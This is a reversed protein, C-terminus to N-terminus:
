APCANRASAMVGCFEGRSVTWVDDVLTMGGELASYATEEGFLVDYTITASEGDISVVTPVLSIGGMASGAAEYADITEHLADADEIHEAKDDYGVTSDFVLAWVDAAEQEESTMEGTAAVQEDLLAMSPVETAPDGDAALALEPVLEDIVYELSLASGHSFAGSLLPDAIIERGEAFATLTPRLAEGAVAEYGAEDSVVWVIVDQDLVALEESSVSFFFEDGALEDFEAPTVFGMETLTQARGDGSAYAGPEEEFTFAVAATQGEFEPHAERVAAFAAENDSIVAAAEESRGLAAGMIELQDRWPTSYDPHDAPRAVTPAIESLTAYDGDSMGSNIGIILDPDLAAIQEFNLDTAPLVEPEAEGLEDQAWPWTAFPQDGYWDRVAIPTVGLALINDHEAFGISVVRQPEAEITTEGFAHEITVPFAEDAAAADADSSETAAGDSTSSADSNSTDDSGCAALGVALALAVAGGRRALRPTTSM